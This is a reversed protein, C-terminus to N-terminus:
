NIPRDPFQKSARIANFINNVFAEHGITWMAVLFGVTNLAAEVLEVPSNLFVCDYFMPPLGGSFTLNCDRFTCSEYEQGDLPITEGAFERFQILAM